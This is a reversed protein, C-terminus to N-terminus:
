SRFQHPSGKIGRRFQIWQRIVPKGVDRLLAEMVGHRRRKGTSGSVIRNVKRRNTACEHDAVLGAPARRPAPVPIGRIWPWVNLVGALSAAVYTLSCATLIERAAKEQEDSIYDDRLMPLAKGFSADLEAPLAALQAVVGVGIVTLATAGIVMPPVSRRTALAVLPVAILMVSGAEGTVRAVRALRLRWVFPPYGSADQLAHGVEHAATTLATLSRRDMKDRALRITRTRPDYHDGIDTVEIRVSELGHRDLLERVLEAGTLPISADSKNHRKLVQRVWLRPGFILAAAPIIILVPHM